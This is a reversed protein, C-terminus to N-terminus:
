KKGDGGAKLAENEATLVALAKDKAEIQEAQETILKAQQELQTNLTQIQALLEEDSGSATVTGTQDSHAKVFWHEAVDKDVAIRGTGFETVEGGPANFTFPTHVLIEVQSKKAM